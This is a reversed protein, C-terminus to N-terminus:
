DFNHVKSDSNTLTIFKRRISHYFSLSLSRPYPFMDLVYFKPKSTDVDDTTRFTRNDEWYRQWKPEIEHFPYVRKSDVSTSAPTENKLNCKTTKKKKASSRVRALHSLRRQFPLSLFPHNPSNTPRILPFCHSLPVFPDSRFQLIQHSSM